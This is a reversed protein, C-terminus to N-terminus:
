IFISVAITENQLDGRLHVYDMATRVDQFISKFSMYLDGARVGTKERFFVPDNNLFYAIILTNWM